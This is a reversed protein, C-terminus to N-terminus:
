TENLLLTSYLYKLIGEEKGKQSHKLMHVGKQLLETLQCETATHCLCINPGSHFKGLWLRSERRLRMVVKAQGTSFHDELKLRTRELHDGM